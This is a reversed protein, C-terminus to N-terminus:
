AGKKVRQIAGAQVLDAIYTEVWKISEARKAKWPEWEWKYGKHAAYILLFHAQRLGDLTILNRHEKFGKLARQQANVWVTAPAFPSPKSAKIVELLRDAGPGDTLVRGRFPATM